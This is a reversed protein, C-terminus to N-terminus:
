FLVKRKPVKDLSVPSRKLGAASGRLLKDAGRAVKAELISVQSQLEGLREM